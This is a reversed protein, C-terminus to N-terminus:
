VRSASSPCECIVTELYEENGLTVGEAELASGASLAFSLAEDYDGLYYYVKSALLAASNRADM